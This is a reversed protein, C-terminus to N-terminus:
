RLHARDHLAEGDLPTGGLPLKHELLTLAETRAQGYRREPGVRAALEDALLRTVSIKRAAELTDADIALTINRKMTIESPGVRM